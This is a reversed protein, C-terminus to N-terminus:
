KLIEELFKLAEPDRSEGILRIAYKRLEVSTDRRAVDILKRLGAKQHSEAFARLLAKRIEPNQETDYLSVLMEVSQADSHEAIIRIAQARLEVNTESRAAEVLKARARPINGMDGFTRLIQRRIDLERESNYMKLLEEAITDDARDALWRIAGQRFEADEGRTGRAVELLIQRARPDSMDALTRLIQRKIERDTETQYMRVLPEYANAGLADSLWRIATKRLEPSPESQAIELLRAAARPSNHMDAFSRLIRLRVQTDREGAYISSLADYVADGGIDGLRHIALMRLEADQGSRAIELLAPVARQGGHSGLLSVAAERMTRTATSGPKLWEVVYAIAREEDAEFLSQLAVIKLEDTKKSEIVATQVEGGETLHPAIEVVMAEAEDAWSSKPYNKLLIGLQRGAERFMGQQKYAYALWYLAADVDRDKPFSDVFNRFKEAARAWQANEILDRGERFTKMSPSDSSQVFRSLKLLDQDLTVARASTHPWLTAAVAVLALLACLASAAVRARRRRENIAHTSTNSM